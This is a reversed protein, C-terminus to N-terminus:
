LDVVFNWREGDEYWPGCLMTNSCCIAGKIDHATGNRFCKDFLYNKEDKDYLATVSYKYGECIFSFSIQKEPLIIYEIKEIQLDKVEGFSMRSM